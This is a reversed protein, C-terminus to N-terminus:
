WNRVQAKLFSSHGLPGELKRFWAVARRKAKLGCICSAGSASPLSLGPPTVVPLELRKWVSIILQYVQKPSRQPLQCETKKVDKTWFGIRTPPKNKKFINKWNKGYIPFLLGLQSINKLPYTYWWGPATTSLSGRRWRELRAALFTQRSKTWVRMGMTPSSVATGNHLTALCLM